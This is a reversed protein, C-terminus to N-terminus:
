TFLVKLKDLAAGFLERDSLRKSLGFGELLTARSILCENLEEYYFGGPADAVAQLNKRDTYISFKLQGNEVVPAFNCERLLKVAEKHRHTGNEGNWEWNRVHRLDYEFCFDTLRTMILMFLMGRQLREDRIGHKEMSALYRTLLSKFEPDYDKCEPHEKIWTCIQVGHKFGDGEYNDCDPNIYKRVFEGTEFPTNSIVDDFTYAQRRRGVQRLLEELFTGLMKLARMRSLTGAGTLPDCLYCRPPNAETLPDELDYDMFARLLLGEAVRAIKRADYWPYRKVIKRTLFVGLRLEERWFFRYLLAAFSLPPLGKAAYEYNVKASEERGSPGALLGEEDADVDFVHEGFGRTQVEDRPMERAKREEECSAGEKLEAAYQRAYQKLGERAERIFRESQSTYAFGREADLFKFAGEKLRKRYYTLPDAKLLSRLTDERGLVRIVLPRVSDETGGQIDDVVCIHAIGRANLRKEIRM